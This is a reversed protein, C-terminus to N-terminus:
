DPRLESVHLWATERKGNLWYSVNYQTGTGDVLLGVVRATQKLELIEVKEGLQFQFEVRFM